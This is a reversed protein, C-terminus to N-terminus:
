PAGGAFAQRTAERVHTRLAVSSLSLQLMAPTRLRAWERLGRARQAQKAAAPDGALRMQEARHEAARLKRRTKRPLHVGAADVAVGTIMVRGADLSQIRTKKVNVEQGHRAALISVFGRLMVLMGLEDSSLTLDDAYRTYTTGPPCASLIDRDLPLAAINAAMPSSSLGQRAAGDVCCRQALQESLGAALLQEETCHDFFDRLDMQLVYRHGVHAQANTVPSRGPAFGHIHSTDGLTSLLETLEYALLRYRRAERPAQVYVTRSGGSKKPIQIKKV